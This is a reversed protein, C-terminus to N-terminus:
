LVQEQHRERAEVERKRRARKGKDRRILSYADGKAIDVIGRHMM